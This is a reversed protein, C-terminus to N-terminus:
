TLIEGTITAIVDRIRTRLEGIDSAPTAFIRNKVYGWLIFDSPTLDPSRSPWCIPIDLGIWRNAFTANLSGRVDMIWHPPAGDQQYIIIPHLAAVQPYVFQELMDLYVNRHHQRVNSRVLRETEVVM